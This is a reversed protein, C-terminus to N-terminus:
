APTKVASVASLVADSVRRTQGEELEPYMPLSLVERAAAESQPFQGQKFPLSSFVGQMHLPIPYYIMSAIGAQQLQAKLQDRQPHRVTYQHYVHTGHESEIPLQLDSGRLADNYRQAAQRRRKNWDDLHPLKVRLIAAQLTDLRSNFGLIENHYKVRSGHATIAKLRLALQEDHTVIMGGDGFCGLNKSPFFSFCGITGITGVKRGKWTAGASQACDEVVALGHRKAIDMLRTMDVPNGYLHVPLIARTRPTIAAEVADLDLNYTKEDMDVFVPTAGTLSITGGTAIFTFATTIVEDGTGIGLARMAIHLADTGNACGVAHPVDLFRAFEGEFAAVDPGNIYAAQAMSDCVAKTLQPELNRYQLKLDVMPIDSM